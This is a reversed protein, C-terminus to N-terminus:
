RRTGVVVERTARSLGWVTDADLPDFGWAQGEMPVPVTEVWELVSGMEPVQLVYIEPDDHGTVYLHGDDGWNGGSLSNPTLKEILAVPYAYAALRRGEGDFRVLTTWEPGKGPEGSYNGYHAFNLWWSSDRPVAWTLSGEYEGLSKSAIHDLTEADWVEVSSLMPVGPHNSHACVLRAEAVICSNLHIVPGDRGGRWEGVKEGSEREYKAICYNGVAYFHDADVAVGQTAEPAAYRRVEEFPRESM